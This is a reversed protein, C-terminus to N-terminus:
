VRKFPVVVRENPQGSENAAWDVLDARVDREERQNTALVNMGQRILWRGVSVVVGVALFWGYGFALGEIINILHFYYFSAASFVSLLALGALWNQLRLWGSAEEEEDNGMIREMTMRVMMIEYSILGAMGVVGLGLGGWWERMQFPHNLVLLGLLTAFLSLVVLVLCIGKILPGVFNFLIFVLWKIMGGTAKIYADLM